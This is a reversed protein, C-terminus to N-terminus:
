IVCFASKKISMVTKKICMTLIFLKVVKCKCMNCKYMWYLDCSEM